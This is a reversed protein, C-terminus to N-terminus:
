KSNSNPQGGTGSPVPSNPQFNVNVNTGFPSVIMPDQIRNLNFNLNGFGFADTVPVYKIGWLKFHVPAIMTYQM